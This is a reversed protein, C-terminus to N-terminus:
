SSDSDGYNVVNINLDAEVKADVSQKPKGDIMEAIHKENQSNSLYRMMYEEFLEPNERFMKKLRAKVSIAGKPKGKPNGSQGKKFPKLNEISKPSVPM